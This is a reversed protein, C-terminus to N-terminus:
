MSLVGALLVKRGEGAVINFTRCASVTTMVEFGVTNSLYRMAETDLRSFRDGTGLLLLEYGALPLKEIADKDIVGHSVSWLTVAHNVGVFFSQSVKIDEIEIHTSEVKTIKVIDLNNQIDIQM